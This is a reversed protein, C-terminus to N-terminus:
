ARVQGINAFKSRFVGSRHRAGLFLKRQLHRVDQLELVALRLTVEEMCCSDICLGALGVSTGGEEVVRRVEEVFMSVEVKVLMTSEVVLRCATNGLGHETTKEVETVPEEQELVLVLVLM